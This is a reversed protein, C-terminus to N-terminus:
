KIKVSKFGYYTSYVRNQWCTSDFEIDAFTVLSKDIRTPKWATFEPNEIQQSKFFAIENERQQSFLFLRYYARLNLFSIFLIILILSGNIIKNNCWPLFKNTLLILNPLINLFNIYSLFFIIVSAFM